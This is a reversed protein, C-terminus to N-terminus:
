PGIEISQILQDLQSLNPTFIESTTENLLSTVAAYYGSFDPNADNM